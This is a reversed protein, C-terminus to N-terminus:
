FQEWKTIISQTDTKLIHYAKDSILARDYHADLLQDFGGMHRIVKDGEGQNAFQNVAVLHMKLSRIVQEDQVEGEEAYQEVREQMGNITTLITEQGPYIANSLLRYLNQPHDRFGAEMGILTVNPHHGKIIVPQGEAVQSNRWFGARFFDQEAYSAVVRDNEVETYWVPQYVFGYDRNEYGATLSTHKYDVMVIGNSNRAGSNVTVDALGLTAATNSAQAGIAIYKGGEEIFAHIHEKYEDSNHVSPGNAILVDYGNLGNEAIDEPEINDPQFGLRQLAARTGHMGSDNFVAVNVQDLLSAKDPIERTELTIGSTERVLESLLAKDEAEVFYNGNEGKYVQFGHEILKNVLAISEVSRNTIEYPGDGTLGGELDVSEVERVEVDINTYTAIADFGWLEPLSWGSIDYMASVQDSIDEGDWLLTNALGARAQRM